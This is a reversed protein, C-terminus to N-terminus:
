SSADREAEGLKGLVERLRKLARVYRNSAATISIGLIQATESNGFQEFHRLVLVERDVPDMSELAEILQGQFESKVAFGTPTTGSGALFHEAMAVTSAEPAGGPAIPVQRRADRKQTGIHYRYLGILKQGTIFRIWLQFPMSPDRLYDDLRSSIELYAEQLVDSADVRGRLRPDMRLEIMRRLRDRHRDFLDGLVGPREAGAARLRDVDAGRADTMRPAYMM